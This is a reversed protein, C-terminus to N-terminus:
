GTKQVQSKDQMSALHKKKAPCPSGDPLRGTHPNALKDIQRANQRQRSRKTIFSRAQRASWLNFPVLLTDGALLLTELNGIALMQRELYRNVSLLILEVPVLVTDSLKKRM